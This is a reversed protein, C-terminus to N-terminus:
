PSFLELRLAEKKKLHNPITFSVILTELRATISSSKQRNQVFRSVNLVPFQPIAVMPKAQLCTHQMNKVLSQYSFGTLMMRLHVRISNGCGHANGPKQWHLQGLTYLYIFWKIMHQKQDHYKTVAVSALVDALRYIAEAPIQFIM